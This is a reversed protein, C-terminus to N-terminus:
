TVQNRRKPSGMQMKRKQTNDRTQVEIKKQKKEQERQRINKREKNIQYPVRILIFM